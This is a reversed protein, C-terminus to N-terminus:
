QGPGTVPPAVPRAVVPPASLRGIPLWGIPLWAVVRALIGALGTPFFTIVLIVLAGFFVFYAEQLFRLWEPGFTYLIAGLVAGISSGLGGVVAMALYSFTTQWAFVDPSVYGRLCVYAVGAVGAYAASIIFLKIKLQRINVGIAQAALPDDRFARVRLGLPSQAFAVTALLGIGCLGLLIGLMAHNNGALGIGYIGPLGNAGGTLDELNLLLKEVIVAFALTALALYHGRLRLTPWGLLFGVGATAGVACLAAPAGPMGRGELIAFAYAGIGFFASQALSMQGGFGLIFNLGLVLIANIATINAIQLYYPGLLGPLALTLVAWTIAIAITAILLRPM